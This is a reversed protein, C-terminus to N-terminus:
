KANSIGKQQENMWEETFEYNKISKGYKELFTEPALMPENLKM